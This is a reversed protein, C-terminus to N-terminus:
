LKACRRCRAVKKACAEWQNWPIIPTVKKAKLDARIKEFTQRFAGARPDFVTVDYGTRAAIMAVQTGQIGTGVMAFKQLPLKSLKKQPM